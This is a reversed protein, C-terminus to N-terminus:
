HSLFYEYTFFGFLAATCLMLVWSAIKVYLSLRGDDSPKVIFYFVFWVASFFFIAWVGKGVWHHGHLSKLLDKLPNISKGQENLVKYLEGVITLTTIFIFTFSTSLIVSKLLKIRNM